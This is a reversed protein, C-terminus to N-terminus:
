INQLRPRFPQTGRSSRGLRHPLMVIGAVRRKLSAGTARSSFNNISHQALSGLRFCFRWRSRLVPLDLLAIYLLPGRRRDDHIRAKVREAKAGVPSLAKSGSELRKAWNAM